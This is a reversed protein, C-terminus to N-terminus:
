LDTPLSIGLDHLNSINKRGSKSTISCETNRCSKFAHTINSNIIECCIVQEVEDKMLQTGYSLMDDTDINQIEHLRMVVDRSNRCLLFLSDTYKAPSVFFIEQNTKGHYQQYQNKEIVNDIPTCLVTGDTYVIIVCEDMDQYLEQSLLMNGMQYESYQYNGNGELNLYGLPTAADSDFDKYRLHSVQIQDLAKATVSSPTVQEPQPVSPAEPITDVEAVAEKIEPVPVNSTFSTPLDTGALTRKRMELFGERDYRVGRNGQRTWFYGNFAVPESSQRVDVICIDKQTNETDFYIRIYEGAIKGLKSVVANRITLMYKDKDGYFEHYMLDTELGVGAGNNNVGIYIKGGSSNLFEDIVQLIDDLQQKLDPKYNNNSPYVISSKFETNYDEVEGYIKLGSEHDKLHLLNKIKNHIDIAQMRMGSQRIMNHSLVLRALERLDETEATQILQWLADNRETKGLFSVTQLQRFRYRLIDVNVFLEGNVDELAELRAEDVTDNIAFEHLLEILDMRGSYYKHQEEYGLMRALLRAAGLYNYSTLYDNQLIAVRDLVLMLENVHSREIIRDELYKEESVNITALYEDIEEKCYEAFNRMLKKFADQLFFPTDDRFEIFETQLYGKMIDGIYRVLMVRNQECQEMAVSISQGDLSVASQHGSTYGSGASCIIETGIDVTNLNFEEIMERMSLDYTNTADNVNIVKAPFSLPTGNADTFMHDNYTVKYGVIENMNIFATGIVNKDLIKCLFRTQAANYPRVITIYVFDDKELYREKNLYSTAKPKQVRNFITSEIENWMNKYPRIDKTNAAPTYLLSERSLVKIEKWTLLNEPLVSVPEDAETPCFTIYNKGISLRVNNGEFRYSPMNTNEVASSLSNQLYNSILKQDHAKFLSITPITFTDDGLLLYYGRTLLELPEQVNHYTAYRYLRAKNLQPDFLTNDCEEALALQIVLARMNNQIVPSDATLMSTQNESNQVYMEIASILATRFPDQKWVNLERLHIIQFLREICEEMLEPKLFFLCMMININKRPHYVFGTKQLKNFLNDIFEKAGISTVKKKADDDETDTAIDESHLLYQKAREYYNLYEAIISLRNQYLSRQPLDCFNLLDSDELLVLISKSMHLFDQKLSAISMLWKQCSLEFPLETGDTTLLNILGETDWVENSLFQSIYHEPNFKNEDNKTLGTLQVILHGENISKIRCQITQDKYLKTNTPKPPYTLIGYKDILEIQTETINKVTFETTQGVKYFRSYIAEYDQLISMHSDSKAIICALEDIREINRQFPLKTIKYESNEYKVLYKEQDEYIVPLTIKIKTTEM